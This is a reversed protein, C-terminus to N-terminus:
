PHLHSDRSQLDCRGGRLAERTGVTGKQKIHVGEVIICCQSRPRTWHIDGTPIDLRGKFLLPVTWGIIEDTNPESNRPFARPQRSPGLVREVTRSRHESADNPELFEETCSISTIESRRFSSGNGESYYEGGKISQTGACVSTSVLVLRVELDTPVLNNLCQAVRRWHQRVGASNATIPTGELYFPLNSFYCFFLLTRVRTVSM